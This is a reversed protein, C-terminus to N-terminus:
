FRFYSQSEVEGSHVENDVSEEGNFNDYAAKLETVVHAMSNRAQTLIIFQIYILWQSHILPLALM